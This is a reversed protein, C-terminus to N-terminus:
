KLQELIFSEVACKAWQLTRFEQTMYVEEVFFINNDVVVRYPFDTDWWVLESIIFWWNNYNLQWTWEKQIWNFNIESM